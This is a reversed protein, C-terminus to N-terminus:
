GSLNPVLFEDGFNCQIVVHSVPKLFTAVHAVLKLSLSTNPGQIYINFKM